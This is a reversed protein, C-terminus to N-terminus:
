RAGYTVRNFSLFKSAGDYTIEFIPSAHGWGSNGPIETALALDCSVTSQPSTGDQDRPVDHVFQWKVCVICATM